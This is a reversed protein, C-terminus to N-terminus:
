QYYADSLDVVAGYYGSALTSRVDKLTDMKFSKKIVYSNLRRMDIVARWKNEGPKPVCFMKSFFGPSSQAEKWPVKRVAGKDLLTAVEQRVVGMQKGPLKTAFKNAPASLKPLTEFSMVHGRTVLKVVERCAGFKKWAPLNQLLRGGPQKRKVVTM